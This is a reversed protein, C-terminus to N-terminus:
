KELMFNYGQRSDDAKSMTVGYFANGIKWVARCWKQTDDAAGANAEICYAGDDRVWWKGQYLKNCSPTSRACTQGGDLKGGSENKWYTRVGKGFLRTYTSDPLLANLEDKSLMQANKEKLEGLTMDQAQASQLAVAFGFMLVLFCCASKNMLTGKSFVAVKVSLM